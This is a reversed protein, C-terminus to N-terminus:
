QSVGSIQHTVANAEIVKRFQSTLAFNPIPNTKGRSILNSSPVEMEVRPPQAPQVRPPPVPVELLIIQPGSPSMHVNQQFSTASNGDYDEIINPHESPFPKTITPPVKHPIIASKTVPRQQPPDLRQHLNDAVKSFIDSFKEIAVMQSDGINSFPAQPSPNKMAHALEHAAIIVNESSSNYPLPTNHPLLGVCESDREGITKNVYVCHYRYHDM